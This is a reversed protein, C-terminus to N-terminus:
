EDAEVVGVPPELGVRVICASAPDEGGARGGDVPEEFVEVVRRHDQGDRDAPCDWGIQGPNVTHGTDGVDQRRQHITDVGVVREHGGGIGPPTM